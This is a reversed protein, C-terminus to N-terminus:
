IRTRLDLPLIISPAAPTYDVGWSHMLAVFNALLFAGYKFYGLLGLLGAVGAIMAWKRQRDNRAHHVGLAGLQAITSSAALLWVYSITFWGYFFYSAVIMFVKWRVPHPNLLWHGLFVLAFFIAFETTPFLM